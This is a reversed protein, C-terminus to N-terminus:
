WTSDGLVLWTLKLSLAICGSNELVHQLRTVSSDLWPLAGNKEAMALIAAAANYSVEHYSEMIEM